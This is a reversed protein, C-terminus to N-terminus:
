GHGGGHDDGSPDDNGGGHDDGPPDDNGGGHDDGPPDDNGGGHDDGPPDDNGNGGSAPTPATPFVGGITTAGVLEVTQGRPDFDLLRHEGGAPNQFEVEGHSGGPVAVVSLTAREVGGVRVSYKGVPLNEGEVSFETRVGRSELEASLEPGDHGNPQVKLVYRGSLDHATASGGAGASPSNSLTTSLVVRGDHLVDVRQGRPDFDLLPHGTEAPSRFEVEAANAGAAIQLTGRDIGGVRLQYSGPMAGEIEVQFDTHAARQEFDFKGRIQPETTNGRELQVISLDQSTAPRDDSIGGSCDNMSTLRKIPMTGSPLHPDDPVFRVSGSSCDSFTFQLTGWGSHSVNAPDFTNDFRGGQTVVAHMSVQNGVVPGSGIVWIPRGDADFTFWYAILIKGQSTPMVELSFGHGSHAPDSWSASFERTVTVADAGGTGALALAIWMATKATISRLNM